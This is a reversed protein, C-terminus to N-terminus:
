HPYRQRQRHIEKQFQVTSMGSDAAAHGEGEVNTDAVQKHRHVIWLVHLKGNRLKDACSSSLPFAPAALNRRNQKKKPFLAHVPGLSRDRENSCGSCRLSM